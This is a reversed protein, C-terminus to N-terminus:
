ELCDDVTFQGELEGMSCFDKIHADLRIIDYDAIFQRVAEEFTSYKNTPKGRGPKSYRGQEIDQLSLTHIHFSHHADAGFPKGGDHPGNYRVLTLPRTIDSFKSPNEWVLLVFFNNIFFSSKRLRLTYEFQNDLSVMEISNAFHGESEILQRRKANVAKQPIRRGHDIVRRDHGRGM